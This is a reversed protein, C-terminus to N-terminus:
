LAVDPQVALSVAHGTFACHLHGQEVGQAGHHLHEHYHVIETVHGGVRASEETLPGKVHGDSGSVLVWVCM